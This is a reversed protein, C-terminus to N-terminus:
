VLSAQPPQYFKSVPALYAGSTFLPLPAGAPCPTFSVTRPRYDFAYDPHESTIRDGPDDGEFSGDEDTDFFSTILFFRARKDIKVKSSIAEFDNPIESLTPQTHLIKISFSIHDYLPGEGTSMVLIGFVMIIFLRRLFKM